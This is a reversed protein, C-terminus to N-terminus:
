AWNILNKIIKEENKLYPKLVHHVNVIEPEVGNTEQMMMEYEYDVFGNLLDNITCNNHFAILNLKRKQTKGVFLSSM